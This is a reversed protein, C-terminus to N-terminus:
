SWRRRFSGDNIQGLPSWYDAKIEKGIAGELKVVWPLIKEIGRTPMGETIEITAGVLRVGPGFSAALDKPDVTEVSFPDSLDRFRVLRPLRDIPVATKPKTAKIQDIHRSYPTRLLAADRERENAYVGPPARQPFMAGFMADQDLSGHRDTDFSLLCFLLGRPGLDVVTAEGSVGVSLATQAIGGLLGDNFGIGVELINSGTRIGEPTEVELTFRYAVERSRSGCGALTLALGSVVVSRRSPGEGRVTAALADRAALIREPAAEEKM